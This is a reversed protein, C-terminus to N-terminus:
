RASKKSKFSDITRLIYEHNPDGYSYVPIYYDCNNLEPDNFIYLTGEHVGYRINNYMAVDILLNVTDTHGNKHACRIPYHNDTCIDAGDDILVQVVSTHGGSAAHKIPRDDDMHIDAGAEILVQVVDAHVSTM